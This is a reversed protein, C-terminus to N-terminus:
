KNQHTKRETNVMIMWAAAGAYGMELGRVAKVSLFLTAAGAEEEVRGVAPLSFQPEGM